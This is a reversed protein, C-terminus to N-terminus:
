IEANAEVKGPIHICDGNDAITAALVAEGFEPFWWALRAIRGVDAITGGRSGFGAPPPSAAKRGMGGGIEWLWSGILRGGYGVKILGSGALRINDVELQGVPGRLLVLIRPIRMWRRSSPVRRDISPPGDQISGHEHPAATDELALYEQEAM